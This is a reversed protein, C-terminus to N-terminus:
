IVYKNQKGEQMEFNYKHSISMTIGVLPLQNMKTAMNINFKVNYFHVM